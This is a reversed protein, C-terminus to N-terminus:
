ARAKLADRWSEYNYGTADVSEMITVLPNVARYYKTDDKKVPRKTDVYYVDHPEVNNRYCDLYIEEALNVREKDSLKYFKNMDIQYAEATKMESNMTWINTKVAKM